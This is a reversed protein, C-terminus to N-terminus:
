GNIDINYTGAQYTNESTFVRYAKGDLTVSTETFPIEVSNLDARIFGDRLSEAVVVIIRQGERVTVDYAGRMGNTIPIAHAADMIGAYGSGAGLWFSSHHTIVEQRSYEVGLIRATCRVVSTESIGTDFEIYDTNAAEHVLEGNVYFSLHEFSGSMAATSATVHVTCGDEGIFYSPTVLMDFGQLTEGSIDELKQWIRNVADTVAKQSVGIHEDSGLVNSVAMGHEGLGDIQNQLDDIRHQIRDTAGDIMPAIVEGAVDDSLKAPTVAGDALTRTDVAADDIHENRVAKLAMHWWGVARDAITRGTVAKDAIDRAQVLVRWDAIHQIYKFLRQM